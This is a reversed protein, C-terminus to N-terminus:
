LLFKRTYTTFHKDYITAIFAHKSLFDQVYDSELLNKSIHITHCVKSSCAAELLLSLTNSDIRSYDINKLDLTTAFPALKAFGMAVENTIMDSNLLQNCFKQFALMHKNNEVYDDLSWRLPSKTSVNGKYLWEIPNWLAIKILSCTALCCFLPEICRKVPENVEPEAMKLATLAAKVTEDIPVRKSYTDKISSLETREDYTIHKIPRNLPKKLSRKYEVIESFIKSSREYLMEFKDKFIHRLNSILRNLCKFERKFDAVDEYHDTQNKLHTLHTSAKNHVLFNLHESVANLDPIILKGDQKETEGKTLRFAGDVVELTDDLSLRLDYLQGIEHKWIWSSNM